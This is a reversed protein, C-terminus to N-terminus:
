DYMPTPECYLSALLWLLFCAASNATARFAVNLLVSCSQLGFHKDTQCRFPFSSWSSHPQLRCSWFPAGGAACPRSRSSSRLFGTLRRWRGLRLLAFCRTVAAPPSSGESPLALRKTLPCHIGCGVGGISCLDPKSPCRLVPPQQKKCTGILIRLLPPPCGLKM